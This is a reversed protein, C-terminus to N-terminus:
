YDLKIIGNSNTSVIQFVFDIHEQSLLKHYNDNSENILLSPDLRGNPSLGTEFCTLFALFHSGKPFLIPSHQIGDHAVLVISIRDDGTEQHCHLYVITNIDVFM